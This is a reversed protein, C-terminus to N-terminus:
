PANLFEAVTMHSKKTCGDNTREKGTLDKCGRSPINRVLYCRATNVTQRNQRRAVSNPSHPNSIPARPRHGTNSRFVKGRFESLALSPSWSLPGAGKRYASLWSEKRKKERVRIGSAISIWNRLGLMIPRPPYLGPWHSKMLTGSTDLVCHCGNVM